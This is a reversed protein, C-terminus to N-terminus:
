QHHRLVPKGVTNDCSGHLCNSRAPGLSGVDDSIIAYSQSGSQTDCSRHLCDSRAPGLSGVDDSIIAYSQSGSQTDCSRHLCNSRAPGLSGVNDRRATQHCSKGLLGGITELTALLSQAGRAFTLQTNSSM